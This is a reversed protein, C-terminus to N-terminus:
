EEDGAILLGLWMRFKRWQWHVRSTWRFRHEVPCLGLGANPHQWYAHKPTM